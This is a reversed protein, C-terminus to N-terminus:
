YNFKWWRPIARIKVRVGDRSVWRNLQVQARESLKQAVDEPSGLMVLERQARGATRTSSRSVVSKTRRPFPRRLSPTKTVVAYYRAREFTHIGQM